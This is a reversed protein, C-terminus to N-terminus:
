VIEAIISDSIFFCDEPIRVFGGPIEALHGCSLLRSVADGDAHVYLYDKSIGKDTRLSLMIEELVLQDESLNECGSVSAFDGEVAAKLYKNLDPHNWRRVPRGGGSAAIFSHAGPGFGSYPVHSWYASNHVAERGPLAFNSIEYHRYGAEALMRCLIEYQRRCHEEGAEKFRGDGVMRALASGPEISLQYASVHAPLRGSSSISLAESVTRSWLDDTLQPLGFILDISINDAGAEELISYAKRAGAADHRRNMWKLIGDDLSQVGMSFRSVGLDILAHVYDVGKEVIDDPNVEITFEDRFSSHANRELVEMLSRYFSLPLVSPTGGGIYLTDVDGTIEEKRSRIESFLADAFKGYLAARKHAAGDGACEPVAESYFDCYTCFSRCFPIHIYIM